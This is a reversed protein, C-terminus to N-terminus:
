CSVGSLTMTERFNWFCHMLCTSPGQLTSQCSLFGDMPGLNLICFNSPLVFSFLINWSSSDNSQAGIIKVFFIVSHIPTVSCVQQSPLLIRHHASNKVQEHFSLQVIKDASSSMGPGRAVVKGVLLPHQQQQKSGVATVAKLAPAPHLQQLLNGGAAAPPNSSSSSSLQPQSQTM